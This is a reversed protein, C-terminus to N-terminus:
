GITAVNSIVGIDNIRRLKSADRKSPRTEQEVSGGGGSFGTTTGGFGVTVGPSKGFVSIPGVNRGVM